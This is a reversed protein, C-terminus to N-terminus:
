TRSLFPVLSMVPLMGINGLLAENNNATYSPIMGAEGTCLSLTYRCSSGRLGRLPLIGGHGIEFAHGSVTFFPFASPCDNVAGREFGFGGSGYIAVFVPLVHSRLTLVITWPYVMKAM